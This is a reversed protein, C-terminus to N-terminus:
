VPAPAQSEFHGIPIEVSVRTGRGSQSQIGVSGGLLSVRERMGVLGRSLQAAPAVAPDFGAGRDVIRLRIADPGAVLAVRAEQVGAHRAVNTLAEQVVRFIATEVEPGFRRKGVGVSRVSVHVGTQDVLRQTLWQIAPTVGFDDLIAPRLAFSLARVQHILDDVLRLTRELHPAAEGTSVSSAAEVSFRLGTLVQGIEDHLERALHGREAEQVAVLRRSLHALEASGTRVRDFLRANTLALAAHHAFVSLVAMLDSPYRRPTPTDFVLVAEPEGKTCLPWGLHVVAVTEGGPDIPMPHSNRDTGAMAHALGTAGIWEVLGDAVGVPPAAADKAEVGRTMRCQFEGAGVKRLFLRVGPIGTLRAAQDVVTGLVAELELSSALATQAKLLATLADRQRALSELATHLAGAVAQIELGATRPIEPPPGGWGTQRVAGALRRLPDWIRRAAAYGIGGAFLLLALAPAAALWCARRVRNTLLKGPIEVNVQWPTGRVPTTVRHSQLPDALPEGVRYPPGSAFLVRRDADVVVWAASAESTRSPTPPRVSNLAMSAYLVGLPRGRADGVPRAVVVSPKGSIRGIQFTGFAPRGTRVVEQFWRQDAVWIRGRPPLPVASMVVEGRLTVRAINELHPAEARTRALLNSLIRPSPGRVTWMGALTDLVGAARALQGSVEAAVREALDDSARQIAKREECAEKYVWFGSFGLLPLLTGLLLVLFHSRLSWAQQQMRATLGEAGGADPM